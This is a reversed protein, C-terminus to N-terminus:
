ASHSLTLPHSLPQLVSTPVWSRQGQQPFGVVVGKNERHLPAPAAESPAPAPVPASSPWYGPWAPVHGAQPPVGCHPVVGGEIGVLVGVLVEVEVQWGWGM